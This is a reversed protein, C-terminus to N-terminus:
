TRLCEYMEVFVYCMARLQWICHVVTAATTGHGGYLGTGWGRSQPKLVYLAVYNFSSFIDNIISRLWNEAIATIADVYFLVCLVLLILALCV